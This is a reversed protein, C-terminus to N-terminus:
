KVFLIKYSIKLLFLVVWIMEILSKRRVFGGLIKKMKMIIFDFDM